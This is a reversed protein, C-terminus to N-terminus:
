RPVGHPPQRTVVPPQCASLGSLPRKNRNSPSTVATAATDRSGILATAGCCWARRPSFPSPFAATLDVRCPPFLFLLRVNDMKSLTGSRVQVSRVQPSVKVVVPSAETERSEAERRGGDWPQVDAATEAWWRGAQGRWRPYRITYTTVRAQRLHNRTKPRGAEVGRGGDVGKGEERRENRETRKTAVNKSCSAVWDALHGATEEKTAALLSCRLLEPLTRLENNRRSAVGGLLSVWVFERSGGCRGKRRSLGLLLLVLLLSVGCYGDSGVDSTKLM